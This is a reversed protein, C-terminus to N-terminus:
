EKNNRFKEFVGHYLVFEHLTYNIIAGIILLMLDWNVLEGILLLMLLKKTDHWADHEKFSHICFYGSSRKRKFCFLDMMDTLIVLIVVKLLLYYEM